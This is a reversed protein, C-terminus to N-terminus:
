RWMRETCWRGRSCDWHATGPSRNRHSCIRSCLEFISYGEFALRDFVKKQVKRKLLLCARNNHGRWRCRFHRRGVVTRCSSTRDSSQRCRNLPRRLPSRWGFTRWFSLHSCFRCPRRKRSCERRPRSSKSAAEPKLLQLFQFGLNLLPHFHATLPASFWPWSSRAPRWWTSWWRGTDAATQGPFPRSGRWWATHAEFAPFPHPRWGRTWSRSGGIEIPWWRPWEGAPRRRHRDITKKMTKMMMKMRRLLYHFITFFNIFFIKVIVITFQLLFQPLDKQWKAELHAATKFFKRKNMWENVWESVWESVWGSPAFTFVACFNRKEVWLCSDKKREKM